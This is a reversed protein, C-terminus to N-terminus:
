RFAKLFAAVTTAYEPMVGSGPAHHAGISAAHGMGDIVVVQSVDHGARALGSRWREVATPTPGMRDEAGLVVLTPLAMKEIFPLPDFNAVWEWNPRNEASPMVGDLAVAAYWPEARAQDILALVGDHDSGSGLWAFYAELLRRAQSRQEATVNARDLQEDYMFMEVERPTSGGGTLVIAFALSPTRDALIPVFWGAQSVGWVGIRTQDVRPDNELIAIAARADQVNDDFSATAWSGTSQGSGRKDYVLTAFGQTTFLDSFKRLDERTSPGSGGLMVVAPHPGAGSPLTLTAALEISDAEISIDISTVSPEQPVNWLLVAIILPRLPTM